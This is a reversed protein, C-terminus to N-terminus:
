VGEGGGPTPARWEGHLKRVIASSLRRRKDPIGRQSLAARVARGLRDSEEADINAMALIEALLGDHHKLVRRMRLADRRWAWAERKAAAQRSRALDSREAGPRAGRRLRPCRKPTPGHPRPLALIFQADIGCSALFEVLQVRKGYRAPTHNPSFARSVSAGRGILVRVADGHRHKAALRLPHDLDLRAAPESLARGIAELDGRSAAVILRSQPTDRPAAESEAEQPYAWTSRSGPAARHFNSRVDRTKLADLHSPIM